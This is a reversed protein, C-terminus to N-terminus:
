WLAADTAPSSRSRCGARRSREAPLKDAARGTPVPGVRVRHLTKGSRSLPAVYAPMGAAQLDAVLKPGHGFRVCRGAGLVAGQAPLSRRRWRDTQPRGPRPCERLHCRRSGDRGCAPGRAALRSGARDRCRRRRLRDRRDAVIVAVPAAGIRADPRRRRAPTTQWPGASTSRSPARTERRARSGALRPIRAARSCNPCWRRGGAVVLVSAGILRAKLPEEM